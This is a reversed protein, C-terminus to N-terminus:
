YLHSNYVLGSETCSTIFFFVCLFFICCLVLLMLIIMDENLKISEEKKHLDRKPKNGDLWLSLLLMIISRIM